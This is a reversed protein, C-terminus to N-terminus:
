QGPKLVGGHVVTKPENKELSETLTQQHDNKSLTKLFSTFDSIDYGINCPTWLSFNTKIYDALM